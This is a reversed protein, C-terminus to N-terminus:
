ILMLILTGALALPLLYALKVRRELEEAQQRCLPTLREICDDCYRLQEDRYGEGLVRGFEALIDCFGEPM